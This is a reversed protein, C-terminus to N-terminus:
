EGAQQQTRQNNSDSKDEEKSDDENVQVENREATNNSIKPSDGKSIEVKTNSNSLETQPSKIEKDSVEKESAEDFNIGRKVEKKVNSTVSTKAVKKQPSLDSDSGSFELDEYDDDDDSSSETEEKSTTCALSAAIAARLQSDESADVISEQSSFVFCVTSPGSPLIKERQTTTKKSLNPDYKRRHSSPWCNRTVNRRIRTKYSLSSSVM